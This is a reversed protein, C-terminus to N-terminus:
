ADTGGDEPTKGAAELIDSIRYGLQLLNAPSLIRSLNETTVLKMAANAEFITEGTDRMRAALREAEHYGIHPLLATAIVPARHLTEESRTEDVTM